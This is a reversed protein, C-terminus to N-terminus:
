RILPLRHNFATPQAELRLAERQAFTELELLRLCSSEVLSPLGDPALNAGDAVMVVLQGHREMLRLVVPSDADAKAKVVIAEPEAVFEWLLLVENVENDFVFVGFKRHRSIM